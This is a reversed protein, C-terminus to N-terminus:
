NIPTIVIGEALVDDNATADGTTKLTIASSDTESLTGSVVLDYAIGSSVTARSHIIYKQTNTGTSLILGEFEWTTAYNLGATRTAVNTAGVYFRATKSNGNNAFTGWARIHVGKGSSSLTNAAIDESILDDEGTGVNGVASIDVATGYLNTRAGGADSAGTGGNAVALDTGSWNGNNVASLTALSGLGLTTRGASADADDVLSRGFSTLPTAAYTDSATTYIMTDAATTLGAISQLGADQAQVDTGIALGLTTRAASASADDILSRGFSTLTAVAYTDSATTYIMRDAVTTLGAISQLGADFAQVNTGIVLGLTTRAASASADDILSRGFSTLTAVAYTDSATTYIMRDAVTTLGSISQLGADYAQVNTGIAVGLTTRAASADLDDVLSAGFTSITTSDPVTLTKIGSLSGVESDMLAGAATVNTTDTVDASTEIGSLKTKEADTYANTNLETEYATKIVAGLTSLDVDAM